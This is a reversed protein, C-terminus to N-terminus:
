TDYANKESLQIGLRYQGNSQDKEIWKVSGWTPIGYYLVIIEDGPQMGEGDHLELMLGIGGHSEDVVAAIRPEEGVVVCAYKIGSQFRPWQRKRDGHADQEAVAPSHPIPKKLGDSM